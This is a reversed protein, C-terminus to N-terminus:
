VIITGSYRLSFDFCREYWTFRERVGGVCVNSFLGDRGVVAQGQCEPRNFEGGRMMTWTPGDTRQSIPQAFYVVYEISVDTSPGGSLWLSM